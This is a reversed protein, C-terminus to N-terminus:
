CRGSSSGSRRLSVAAEPAAAPSLLHHTQLVRHHWFTLFHGAVGLVVPFFLGATPVHVDYAGVGGLLAGPPFIRAVSYNRKRKM